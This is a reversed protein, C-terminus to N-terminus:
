RERATSKEFGYQALYWQVSHGPQLSSGELACNVYEVVDEFRASANHQELWEYVEIIQLVFAQPTGASFTVSATFKAIGAASLPSNKFERYVSRVLAGATEPDIRSLMARTEQDVTHVPFVTALVELTDGV